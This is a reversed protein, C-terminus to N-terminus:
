TRNASGARKDGASGRGLYSLPWFLGLTGKKNESAGGPKYYIPTEQTPQGKEYLINEGGRKTKEIEIALGGRKIEKWIIRLVYKKEERHLTM